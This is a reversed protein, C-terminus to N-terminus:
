SGHDGRAWRGARKHLLPFVDICLYGDRSEGRGFHVRGFITEAHRVDRNGMSRRRAHGLSSFGGELYYLIKYSEAVVDKGRNERKLLGKTSLLPLLESDESDV